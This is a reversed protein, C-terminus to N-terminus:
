VLFSIVSPVAVCVPVKPEESLSTTSSWMFMWIPNLPHGHSATEQAARFCCMLSAWDPSVLHISYKCRNAQEWPVCNKTFAITVTRLARQRKHTLYFIRKLKEWLTERSAILVIDAEKQGTPPTAPQQFSTAQISSPHHILFSLGKRKQARLVSNMSDCPTCNRDQHCCYTLPSHTQTLM